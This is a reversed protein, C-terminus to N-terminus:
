DVSISENYVTTTDVEIDTAFTSSIDTSAGMGEFEIGMSMAANLSFSMSSKTSTSDSSSLGIHYTFDISETATDGVWRGQATAGHNTRYVGIQNFTFSAGFINVCSMSHESDTWMPGELVVKEPEGQFAASRDLKVSYGQPIMVSGIFNGGLPEIDKLHRKKM